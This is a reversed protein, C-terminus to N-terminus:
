LKLLTCLINTNDSAKLTFTFEGAEEMKVDLRNLDPYLKSWFSIPELPISSLNLTAFFRAGKLDSGQQRLYTNGETSLGRESGLYFTKDKVGLYIPTPNYNVVYETASLAKVSLFSNGWSSAGSLFDTNALQATFRANKFDFDFRIDKSATSAKAATFEVALDGDIAKIIRDADVVLNLTILATRITPESRLFKLLDEGKTNFALWIAQDAHANEVLSGNLPRMLQNFRQLEAKVDEDNSVINIDLDLENDDADLTLLYLGQASSTLKLSKMYGLVEQPMLEPRVVAVVPEDESFLLDYLETKLASEKEKQELLKVITTRLQDQAAGVAPGMALAKEDDFAMLWKQEVVVWSYGRQRTMESARGQAQLRQCWATLEDDNAVAALVGFNGDQAAFGYLSKSLDLGTSADKEDSFALRQFLQAKEEDTLKAKDFIANVDLRALAQADKPLANLYASSSGRFLFYAGVAAVIAVALSILLAKTKTTM